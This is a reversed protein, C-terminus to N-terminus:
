QGAEQNIARAVKLVHNIRPQPQVQPARELLGAEFELWCALPERAAILAAVGPSAADAGRFTATFLKDAAAQLEEAVTM